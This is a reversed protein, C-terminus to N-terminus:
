KTKHKEFVSCSVHFQAHQVLSFFLLLYITVSELTLLQLINGLPSFFNNLGSIRVIILFYLSHVNSGFQPLNEKGQDNNWLVRVQFSSIMQEQYTEVWKSFPLTTSNAKDSVRKIQFILAYILSSNKLSLSISHLHQYDLHSVLTM